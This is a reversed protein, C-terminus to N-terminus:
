LKGQNKARQILAQLVKVFNEYTVKGTGDPDAIKKAKEKEEETLEKEPQPLGLVKTQNIIAEKFVGPTIYGKKDADLKAFADKFAQELKAPDNVLEKIKEM